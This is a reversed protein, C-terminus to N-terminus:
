GAGFLHGQMSAVVGANGMSVSPWVVAAERAKMFLSLENRMWGPCVSYTDIKALSNEKHGRSSFQLALPPEKGEEKSEMEKIYIPTKGAQRDTCM